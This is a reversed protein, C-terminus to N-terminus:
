GWARVRMSRARGRIEVEITANASSVPLEAATYLEESVVISCQQQKAVELLRSTVNITDGIATIHQHHKPGLRSIVAPGFHAGIRVSLRGEAGSSLDLLWAAISQHLRMVAMLARAADDSRPKPIGFIAMAGDGMFTAVIGEFAMVDREILAQFDGLLDRAREPGLEEAVGTFSSLDIFVAAVQHHVPKELFAPDNLIHEVLLPSQFQALTARETALRTALYRELGLRMSGYGVMIPLTAAVPIAVSLWYGNLFAVFTLALWAGLLFCVLALGVFIQRMAMLLVTGIPLAIAAVADIDRVEPSRILGDGSLLNAIATAVIEVGPVVRDFPTAFMDGLGVATAGLLVVKDRVASRDLAGQLIRTASFEKIAGRPGYFRIPLHYGLDLSTVTSGFRVSNEGFAADANLALSAAVLTFSPVIKDNERFIMPVFRPVGTQDTAVNVLGARTADRIQPTPWLVETPAPVLTLSSSPLQAGNAGDREFMAISAVVSKTSRLADALDSDTEAKGADLFAM